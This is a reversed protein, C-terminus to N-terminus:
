NLRMRYLVTVPGREPKPFDLAYFAEAVCDVAFLDPLDSGLDRVIEVQGAPDIVFQFRVHGALEEQRQLGSRYCRAFLRYGAQVIGDIRDVALSGRSSEDLRIGEEEPEEEPESGRRKATSATKKPPEPPPPNAVRFVFVWEGVAPRELRGFRLDAVRELLCSEVAETRITSRVVEPNQPVGEDNTRWRVRVTGRASPKRFFCKRFDVESGRMAFVIKGPDLEDVEEQAAPAPGAAVARPPKSSGCGLTVCGLLTAAFLPAGRFGGRGKM